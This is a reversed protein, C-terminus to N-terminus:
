VLITTFDHELQKCLSPALLNIYVAELIKLEFESKSKNLITFYNDNYNIGCQKNELLHQTISSRGAARCLKINDKYDGSPNQIFDKVCKPVHERIRAKIRRKTKGVYSNDCCCKFQYIVMSTDDFPIPDKSISSIMPKSTFITRPSASHYCNKVALKLCRELQYSSKGRFELVIPVHDVVPGFTPTKNLKNRQIEIIKNVLSKPYCNAELITAVNLLEQELNNPSCIKIARETLTKIM